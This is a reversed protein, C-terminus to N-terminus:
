RYFGITSRCLTVFGNADKGMCKTVFIEIIRRKNTPVSDDGDFTYQIQNTYCGVTMSVRPVQNALSNVQCLSEDGISRRSLIGNEQPGVITWSSNGGSRLHEHETDGLREGPIIECNQLSLSLVAEKIGFSLFGKKHSLTEKGFRVEPAIDFQKRSSGQNFSSLIEACDAVPNVNQVYSFRPKQHGSNNKPTVSKHAHHKFESDQNRKAEVFKRLNQYENSVSVIYRSVGGLWNPICEDSFDSDFFITALWDSSDKVYIRQIINRIEWSVGKSGSLKNNHDWHEEAIRCYRETCVILVLPCRRIQRACWSPWGPHPNAEDQDIDCPIGDGRLKKVLALM